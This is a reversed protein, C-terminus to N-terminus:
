RELVRTLWAEGKLASVVARDSRPAAFTSYASRRSAFM